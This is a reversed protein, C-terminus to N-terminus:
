RAVPPAAKVFRAVDELVPITWRYPAAFAALMDKHEVGPYTKVTVPAGTARLAAAFDYTLQPAAVDDVSGTLLM